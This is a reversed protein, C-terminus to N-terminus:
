ESKNDEGGKQSILTAITATNAEISSQLNAITKNLHVAYYAMFCCAVIPFGVNSIANMIENMDIIIVELTNHVIVATSM